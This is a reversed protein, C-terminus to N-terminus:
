KHFSILKSKVGNVIKHETGNMMQSEVGNMTKSEVGNMTKSEVGGNMTKIDKVISIPIGNVVPNSIGNSILESKLSVLYDVASM